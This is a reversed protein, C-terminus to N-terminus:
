PRLIRGNTRGREVGKSLLLLPLPLPVVIEKFELGGGGEVAGRRVEGGSVILRCCVATPKKRCTRKVDFM